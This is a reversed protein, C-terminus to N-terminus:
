ILRVSDISVNDTLSPCKVKEGCGLKDQIGTWPNDHNSEFEHCFSYFMLTAKQDGFLQEWRAITAKNSGLIRGTARLGPGESRIRLASAVKSIPTKLNEM